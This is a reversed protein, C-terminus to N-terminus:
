SEIQIDMHDEKVARRRQNTRQQNFEELKKILLEMSM